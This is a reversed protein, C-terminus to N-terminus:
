RAVDSNLGTLSLVAALRRYVPHSRARVIGSYCFSPRTNGAEGSALRSELTGGPVYEMVLFDYGDQADFDFVTAVGSHSFRSLVLAERRFRHRSTANGIAGRLLLKIVVTRDLNADHAKWVEGMGGQGILEVLKYRGLTTGPAVSSSESWPTVSSATM